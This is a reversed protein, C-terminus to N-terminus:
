LELLLVCALNDCIIHLLRYAHGTERRNAKHSLQHLYASGLLRERRRVLLQRFVVERSSKTLEIAHFNMSMKVFLQTVQAVADQPEATFCFGREPACHM